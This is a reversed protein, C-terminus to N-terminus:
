YDTNLLKYNTILLKPLLLNCTTLNKERGSPTPSGKIKMSFKQDIRIKVIIKSDSVISVLIRIDLM